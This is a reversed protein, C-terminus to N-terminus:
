KCANTRIYCFRYLNKLSARQQATATPHVNCYWQRANGIDSKNSNQTMNETVENIETTMTINDKVSSNSTSSSM